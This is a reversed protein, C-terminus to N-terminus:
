KKLVLIIGPAFLGVMAVLGLGVASSESIDDVTVEADGVKANVFALQTLDVQPLVVIGVIIGTILLIAGIGKSISSSKAMVSLHCESIYHM